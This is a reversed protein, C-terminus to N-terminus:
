YSWLFLVRRQHFPASNIVCNNKKKISREVTKSTEEPATKVYDDSRVTMKGIKTQSTFFGITKSVSLENQALM